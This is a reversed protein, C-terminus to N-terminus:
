AAKIGYLTFTTGALFYSANVYIEISNIASTSRWLGVLANVALGANNSRAINTKYTSTNSYNQVSVKTTNANATTSLYAGYTWRGFAISSYRGSTAISGDGELYTWSYNTATDGNFRYQIDSTTAGVAGNIVIELDTYTAPISSFTFSTTSSGTVTNTAIPEYTAGAAM